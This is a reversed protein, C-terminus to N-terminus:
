TSRFTLSEPNPVLDTSPVLIKFFNKPSSPFSIDYSFTRSRTPSILLQTSRSINTANNARHTAPATANPQPWAPAIHTM